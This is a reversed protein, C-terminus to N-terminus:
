TDATDLAVFQQLTQCTQAAVGLLLRPVQCQLQVLHNMSQPSAVRRDFLKVQSLRM